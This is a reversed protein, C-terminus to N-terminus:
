EYTMCQTWLTPFPRPLQVKNLTRKANRLDSEMEPSLNSHEKPLYGPGWKVFAIYPFKTALEEPTVHFRTGYPDRLDISNVHVGLISISHGDSSACMPYGEDALEQLVSLLESFPFERFANEDEDYHADWDFDHPHDSDITLPKYMNWDGFPEGDVAPDLYVMDTCGTLMGM